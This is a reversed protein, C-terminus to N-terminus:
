AHQKPNRRMLDEAATLQTIFRQRKEKAERKKQIVDILAGANFQPKVPPLPTRPPRLTFIKLNPKRYAKLEPIVPKKAM